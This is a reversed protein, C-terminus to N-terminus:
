GLVPGAAAGKRVTHRRWEANGDGLGVQGGGGPQGVQAALREGFGEGGAVGRGTGVLGVRALETATVGQEKRRVTVAMMAHPPPRPFREGAAM